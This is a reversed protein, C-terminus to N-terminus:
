AEDDTGGTNTGTISRESGFGTDDRTCVGVTVAVVAVVVVVSSRGSGGRCCCLLVYGTNAAQTEASSCIHALIQIRLNVLVDTLFETKLSTAIM